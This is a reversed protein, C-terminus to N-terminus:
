VNIAQIEKCCRDGSWVVGCGKNVRTKWSRITCTSRWTYDELSVRDYIPQISKESLDPQLDLLLAKSHNM